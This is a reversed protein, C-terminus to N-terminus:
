YIATHRIASLGMVDVDLTPLGLILYLDTCMDVCIGMATFGLAFDTCFVCTFPLPLPAPLPLLVLFFDLLATSTALESESSKPLLNELDDRLDVGLIIVPVAPALDGLLHELLPVLLVLLVAVVQSCELLPVAPALDGLLCEPQLALLVLLAVFAQLHDLLPLQLVVLVWYGWDMVM